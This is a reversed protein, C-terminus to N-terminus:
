VTRVELFSMDNVERFEVDKEDLYFLDKHRAARKFRLSNGSAVYIPQSSLSVCIMIM